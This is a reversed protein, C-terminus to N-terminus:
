PLPATIPEGVTYNSYFADSLDDIKLNWKTGYMSEAIEPSIVWRLVGGADVAYVKPDTQLKVMRVGPRYTVNGGLQIDALQEDTINIVSSFDTYWSNYMAANPFVYRKGNAGCYYVASSIPAKILTGSACTATSAAALAKDDNITKANATAVAPDFTGPYQAALLSAYPNIPTGDPLRIEFHLHAGVSEANGSDGVWGIHQGATVTTGRAIGPAYAHQPGGQGDDTGPTDNNVHLYRYSYGDSDELYIGFGWSPEDQPLFTVRGNIASQLPTMKAAIIDIGEHTRGGSRADGFNDNFSNAGNVPFVISRVVQAGVATPWGLVASVLLAALTRAHTQLIVM